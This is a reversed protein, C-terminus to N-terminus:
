EGDYRLTQNNVVDTGVYGRAATTLNDGHQDHERGLGTWSQAQRARVARWSDHLAANIEGFAAIDSETQSQDYTAAQVQEDAAARFTQSRALLASPDVDLNSM